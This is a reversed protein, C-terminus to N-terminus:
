SAKYVTDDLVETEPGAGSRGPRYQCGVPGTPLEYESKNGVEERKGQGGPGPKMCEIDIDGRLGGDRTDIKTTRKEVGM